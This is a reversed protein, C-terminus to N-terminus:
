KFGALSATQILQLSAPIMHSIISLGMLFCHGARQAKGGRARGRIPSCRLSCPAWPCLGLQSCHWCGTGAPWGLRAGGEQIWIRMQFDAQLMYPHGPCYSPVVSALAGGRRGVVGDQEASPGGQGCGAWVRHAEATGQGGLGRPWWAEHPNGRGRERDCVCMCVTCESVCECEYIYM